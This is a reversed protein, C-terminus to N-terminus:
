VVIGRSPSIGKTVAPSLYSSVDMLHIKLTKANHFLHIRQSSKDVQKMDAFCTNETMKLAVQNDIKIVLTSNKHKAFLVTFLHTM